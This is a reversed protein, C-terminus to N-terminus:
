TKVDRLFMNTGDEPYILFFEAQNHYDFLVGPKRRTSRNGGGIRMGGIAGCDDEDVM